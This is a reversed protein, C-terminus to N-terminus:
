KQHGFKERSRVHLCCCGERGPRWTDAKFSFGAGEFTGYDVQAAIELMIATERGSLGAEIYAEKLPCTHHQIDLGGSDCRIVEPTFMRGGDPHLDQIFADRLGEFDDPAYSALRRGISLGRNYVAKKMIAEAREEGIEDHMAEFIHWYMMARNKVQGYLQERLAEENM